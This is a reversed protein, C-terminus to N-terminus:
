SRAPPCLHRARRDGAGAGHDGRGAVRRALGIEMSPRTHTRTRPSARRLRQRGPPASRASAIAPPGERPWGRIVEPSTLASGEGGCYTCGLTSRASRARPPRARAGSRGDRGDLHGARPGLRDGACRAAGGCGARAPRDHVAGDLVAARASAAITTSSRKSTRACICGPLPEDGADPRHREDGHDAAAASGVRQARLEARGRRRTVVPM